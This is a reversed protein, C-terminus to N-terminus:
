FLQTVKGVSAVWAHGYSLYCIAGVWLIDFTVGPPLHAQAAVMLHYGTMHKSLEGM